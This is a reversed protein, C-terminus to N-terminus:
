SAEKSGAFMAEKFQVSMQLKLDKEAIINVTDLFRKKESLIQLKNEGIFTTINNFFNCGGQIENRM